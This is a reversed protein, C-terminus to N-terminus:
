FTDPPLIDRRSPDPTGTSAGSGDSDGTADVPPPTTSTVVVQDFWTTMYSNGSNYLTVRLGVFPKEAKLELTAPQWDSSQLRIRSEIPKSWAYNGGNKYKLEVVVANYLDASPPVPGPNLSNKHWYQLHLAEGKSGTYAAEQRLFKRTVGAKLPTLQFSSKGAHKQDTVLQDKAALNRKDGWYDPLKDSNKDVEFNSNRLLNDVKPGPQCDTDTNCSNNGVGSVVTCANKVCKKYTPNGGITSPIVSIGGTSHGDRSFSSQDTIICENTLVNCAIPGDFNYLLLTDTDPKFPASPVASNTAYRAVRSIRTDDMLGKFLVDAGASYVTAGLVVPKTSPCNESIFLDQTYKKGNVYIELKGDPQIVGAVHQWSTFEERTVKGEWAAYRNARTDGKCEGVIFSYNTRYLKGDQEPFGNVWLAFPYPNAEDPGKAFVYSAYNGSASADVEPKVWAEATFGPKPQLDASKTATLYNSGTFKGANVWSSTTKVQSARNFLGTRQGILYVALALGALLLLIPLVAALAFGRKQFTM